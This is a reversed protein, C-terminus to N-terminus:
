LVGKYCESGQVRACGQLSNLADRLASALRPLLVFVVKPCMAARPVLHAPQAHGMMTASASYGAGALSGYEPSDGNRRDARGRGHLKHGCCEGREILTNNLRHLEAIAAPLCAAPLFNTATTLVAAAALRHAAAVLM